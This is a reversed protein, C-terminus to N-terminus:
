LWMSRCEIAGAPPASTASPKAWKLLHCVLGANVGAELSCTPGKNDNVSHGLLKDIAADHGDSGGRAGVGSWTNTMKFVNVM